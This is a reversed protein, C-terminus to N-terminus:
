RASDRDDPGDVPFLCVFCAGPSVETDLYIEGGHAEMVARCIALGLGTGVTGSMTETDAKSFRDFLNERFSEPVGPGHDRVQLSIAGDRRDLTIEVATRAPAFKAANAVLNDVVQTLRDVDARCWLEPETQTVTLTQEKHAVVKQLESMRRDVIYGVETPAVNLHMGAGGSLRRIDLLDNVLRHLREVNHQAMDLLDASQDRGVGGALLGIAGKISTLPTRLEHSINSIFEDKLREARRRETIESVVAVWTGILEEHPVARLEIPPGAGGRGSRDLELLLETRGSVVLRSLRRWGHDGVVDAVHDIRPLGGLSAARPNHFEVLGDEDFVLVASPVAKLVSVLRRRSQALHKRTERLENVLDALEEVTSNVVYALADATSEDFRRQVRAQFDGRAVSTLVEFLQTVIADSQGDAEQESM